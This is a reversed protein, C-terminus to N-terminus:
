KFIIYSTEGAPTEAVNGTLTVGESVYQVAGDTQIKASGKVCAVYLKKQKTIDM